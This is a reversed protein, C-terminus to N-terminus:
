IVVSPTIDVPMRACDIAAATAVAGEADGARQAAAGIAHGRTDAARSCAATVAPLTITSLLPEIVRLPALETPM